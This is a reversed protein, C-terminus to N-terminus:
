GRRLPRAIADIRRLAAACVPLYFPAWAPVAFIVECRAPGLPIVRHGTAPLGAVAWRWARGEEWDTIRFPLWPGLVTQIRGESGPGIHRTACDVARVSPGWEPWRATDVLLDWARDAGAEVRRRTELM